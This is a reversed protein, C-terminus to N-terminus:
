KRTRFNFAELHQVAAELVKMDALAKGKLTKRKIADLVATANSHAIDLRHQQVETLKTKM